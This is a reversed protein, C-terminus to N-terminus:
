REVGVIREFERNLLHGSFDMHDVAAVCDWQKAFWEVDCEYWRRAVIITTIAIHTMM